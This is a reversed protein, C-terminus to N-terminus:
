GELIHQQKLKTEKEIANTFCEPCLWIGAYLTFAHKEKCKQCTPRNAGTIQQM